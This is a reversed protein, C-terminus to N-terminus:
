VNGINPKYQLCTVGQLNMFIKIEPNKKQHTLEINKILLYWREAITYWSLLHFSIGAKSYFLVLINLKEANETTNKFYGNNLM